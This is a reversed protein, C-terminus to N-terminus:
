FYLPTLKPDYWSPKTVGSKLNDPVLANSMCGYFESMRVHSMVWEEKKQSNTVEVYSYSSAGWSSIFMQTSVVEGTERDVYSISDGSYDIFLKDGGKHTM